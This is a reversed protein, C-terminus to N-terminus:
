RPVKLAGSSSRNKDSYPRDLSRNMNTQGSLESGFRRIIFAPKFQLIWSPVLLMAAIGNILIMVCLLMAAEAQFRLDSLLVWMIIGAMLTLATFSIAMGTTSVARRVANRLDGFVRMEEKIRDMMYISYDIGVGIGVAIIPVTNIDINLGMMGMYGYTLTAAFIMSMLMMAGAHLSGYFLMVSVLILAFVLPLVIKNTQFASENMAAAVGLTGGALKFEVDPYRGANESIWEKAMHIARRITEGRKDKYFYVLNAIREDSDVYEDLAGPIPSSAMYVFMLGGVYTQDLPIQFWRPDDNHMLRNIQMVLGPLGQTGGVQPDLLMHQQLDLMARQIAPDKLGGIEKHAVVIYLEESGPFKDNIVRSSVNYDHDGYLIPSGPESDGITVQTASLVSLLVLVAASGLCLRSVKPSGLARAATAGIFRLATEKISPDKPAPLISLLAPISILVSVILSLAWISAYIGLHTNLPISGIAILSLGIADSVVGLSGPKFLSDFTARAARPGDDYKQVEAYYREVLQVGHSMSRAAILFPIVLGLPDLNYGLVSVIGLGWITSVIVAMSPLVVGYVKRFHLILLALMIVVTVAFIVAIQDIFTFTWGVLVPQGTAFITIGDRKETRRLQELQEFTEAYDLRGEILQAKVLAMKFDPSVLPGLVLPNAAVAKRMDRLEQRSYDGREADYYPESNISGFETLWINRATRHTISSILNHNVGPLSDVGQTIRHITKLNENTFIDGEDFQVGVVLVNAGGFQDKIQNHLQIYPHEQPLLDAFDTHIRLGNLQLAFYVTIAAVIVLISRPFRFVVNGLRAFLQLGRNDSMM